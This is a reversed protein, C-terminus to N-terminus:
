YTEMELSDLHDRAIKQSFKETNLIDYNNFLFHADIANLWEMAKLTKIDRSVYITLTDEDIYVETACAFLYDDILYDLNKKIHETFREKFDKALSQITIEYAREIGRKEWFNAKFPDTDFNIDLTIEKKHDQYDQYHTTM